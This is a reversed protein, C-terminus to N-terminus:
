LANVVLGNRNETMLHGHYSLNAEKGRGKRALM